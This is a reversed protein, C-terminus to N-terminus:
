KQISGKDPSDAKKPAKSSSKTTKSQIKVDKDKLKESSIKVAKTAKSTLKEDTSTSESLRATLASRPVKPMGELKAIRGWHKKEIRLQWAFTKEDEQRIYPSMTAKIAAGIEEQTTIARMMSRLETYLWLRTPFEEDGAEVWVKTKGDPSIYELTDDEKRM